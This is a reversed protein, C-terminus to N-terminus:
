GRAARRRRRRGRTPSSRRTPSRSRPRTPPAPRSAPTRSAASGPAPAAGARASAPGHGGTRELRDREGRGTSPASSSRAPAPPGATRAPQREARHHASNSRPTRRGADASACAMATDLPVAPRCRASRATPTLSPSSTTVLGNENTALALTATTKSRARGTNASMSGTVSLRSGSAAAAATSRRARGREQRDVHEAVGRVHRCQLPEPQRDDLVGTLREAGDVRVSAGDAAAAVGGHEAEVGVLLQGGAFPPHDGDAIGAILSRMSESRFWPRAGSM